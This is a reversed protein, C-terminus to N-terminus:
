EVPLNELLFRKMNGGMVARIETETFGAKLMEETLVALESTDFQVETSGDYDSGLSIHELGVLDIGFRMAKVINAPSIDCVAADWYGVAILGGQAAIDKMLTDSVNRPGPCHGNFGTHSVVVPRKAMALVDRVVAESSHAVDVIIKLQEMQEVAKRGFDSLGAGSTGHLSGGLKNDFFHHLGMMRFGADYLRRINSLEGDLAHSGETGLLAAITKKGQQRQQLVAQLDSKNRVLQIADPNSDVVAQLREAQYLAREALSSWTRLPWGQVMALMTINDGASSENRDYNQGSPSKTVSTFMQMAVNGAQLRPVDMHGRDAHENLDRDWLTSDSHWDGILLQQHLTKAAESIAWPEHPVVKNLDKEIMAPAFLRMLVMALLLVLLVSMVSIKIIKM